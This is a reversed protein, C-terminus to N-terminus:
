AGGCCIALWGRDREQSTRLTTLVHQFSLHKCRHGRCWPRDCGVLRLSMSEAYVRDYVHAPAFPIRLASWDRAQENPCGNDRHLYVVPSPKGSPRGSLCMHCPSKRGNACCMYLILLWLALTHSPYNSSGHRRNFKATGVQTSSQIITVKRGVCIM